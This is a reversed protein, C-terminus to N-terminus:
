DPEPPDDGPDIQEARELAILPADGTATMHAAREGFSEVGIQTNDPLKTATLKTSWTINVKGDAGTEATLQKVDWEVEVSAGDMNPPPRDADVRSLHGHAFRFVPVLGRPEQYREDLLRQRMVAEVGSAAILARRVLAM